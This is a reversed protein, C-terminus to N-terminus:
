YVKLEGKKVGVEFVAGRKTIDQERPLEQTYHLKWEGSLVM